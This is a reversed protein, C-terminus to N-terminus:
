KLYRAILRLILYTELPNVVTLAGNVSADMIKAYDPNNTYTIIIPNASKVAKLGDVLEAIEYPRDSARCFLHVYSEKFRRTAEGYDTIVFSYDHKPLVGEYLDITDFTYFDDETDFDYAAAISDLHNHTNLAIYCVTCGHNRIYNALGLAFATTGM